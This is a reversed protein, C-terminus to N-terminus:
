KQIFVFNYTLSIWPIFPFGKNTDSGLRIFGVDGSFSNNFFRFGFFIVPIELFSNKSYPIWFEGIFKSGNKIYAQAGIIFFPKTSKSYNDKKLDLNLSATFNYFSDGLTGVFYVLSKIDSNNSSNGFNNM